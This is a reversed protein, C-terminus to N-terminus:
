DGRARGSNKAIGEVEEDTLASLRQAAKFIPELVIAPKKALRAVHAECFLARGEKDCAALAVLKARIRRVSVRPRKGTRDVLSDEFADREEATLGRVYIARGGPLLVKEVPVPEEALLEDGGLEPIADLPDPQMEDPVENPQICTM